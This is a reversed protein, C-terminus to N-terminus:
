SPTFIKKFLKFLSPRKVSLPQILDPESFNYEQKLLGPTIKPFDFPVFGKPQGISPRSFIDHGFNQFNVM